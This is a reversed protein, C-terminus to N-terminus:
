HQAELCLATKYLCFVPPFGNLLIEIRNEKLLKAQVLLFITKRRSFIKNMEKQKITFLKFEQPM